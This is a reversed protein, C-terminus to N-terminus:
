GVSARKGKRDAIIAEGTGAKGKVEESVAYWRGRLIARDDKRGTAQATQGQNAGGAASPKTYRAIDLLSITGDENGVALTSDDPSFAFGLFPKGPARRLTALEKGSQVHFLKVEHVQSPHKGISSSTALYEGTSNLRLSHLILWDSKIASTVAGSEVNWITAEQTGAILSKGGPFYLMSLAAGKPLLLSAYSRAEGPRWLKVEGAASSAFTKGDPAVAINRGLKGNDYKDLAAV